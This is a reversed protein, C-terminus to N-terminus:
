ERPEEQALAQLAGRGFHCFYVQTGGPGARKRVLDHTTFETIHKSLSSESSALYKVRARQYLEAFSLGATRPNDLQYNILLKFLKQANTTLHGLVVQASAGESGVASEYLCGLLEHISDTAEHACHSMTAAERWAWNFARAKRADWLMSANRHVCSAILHIQPIRAIDALLAQNEEGRLAAGDIAHVVVYVHAPM